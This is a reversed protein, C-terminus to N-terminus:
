GEPEIECCAAYVAARLTENTSLVASPDNRDIQHRDLLGQYTNAAAAGIAATPDQVLTGRGLMGVIKEELVAQSVPPPMDDVRAAGAAPMGTPAPTAVDAAPMGTPAPTAVDAPPTVGGGAAKHAAVADKAAQAMGKRAKWSGDANKTRTSTHLDERWVMGNSDLEGDDAVPEERNEPEDSISRGTPESAAAPTATAAPAERTELADLVARAEEINDTEITIKAM